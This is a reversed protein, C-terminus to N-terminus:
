KFKKTKQLLKIEYCQKLFVIITKILPKLLKKKLYKKTINKEDIM